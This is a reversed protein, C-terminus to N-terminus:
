SFESRNASRLNRIHDELALMLDVSEELTLDRVREKIQMTETLKLARVRQIAAQTKRIFALRASSFSDNKNYRRESILSAQLSELHIGAADLVIKLDAEVEEAKKEM